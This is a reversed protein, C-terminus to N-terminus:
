SIIQYEWGSLVDKKYEESIHTIFTPHAILYDLLESEQVEIDSANGQSLHLSELFAEDLTMARPADDMVHKIFLKDM